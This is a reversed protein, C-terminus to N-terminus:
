LGQVAVPVTSDATTGDGLQGYENSGWCYCGGGLAEACTHLLGAEVLIADFDVLAKKPEARSVTTGDGLQGRGNSGWCLTEWPAGDHWRVACAHMLGASWHALNWSPTVEAPVSVEEGLDPGLQGASNEGWGVLPPLGDGVLSALVFFGGADIRQVPEGLLTQVPQKRDVFTGDGLQGHFNQGFCYVWDAGDTNVIACTFFDGATVQKVPGPLPVETPPAQYGAGIGLQGQRDSGWCILRGDSLAACTHYEGAALNVIGGVGVDGLPVRFPALVLPEEELFVQGDTNEGWCHVEGTVLAACTHRFGAALSVISAPPLDVRSPMARPELTGDGLQGKQNGGWCSLRGDVRV